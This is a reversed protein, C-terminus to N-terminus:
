VDEFRSITKSEGISIATSTTPRRRRTPPRSHSRTRGTARQRLRGPREVAPSPTSGSNSARGCGNSARTGCAGARCSARARRNPSNSKRSRRDARRALSASCSPDPIWWRYSGEKRELATMRWKSIVPGSLRVTKVAGDTEFDFKVSLRACQDLMNVISKIGSSHAAFAIMRRGVLMYVIRTEKIENGNPLFCRRKGNADAQWQAETPKQSFVNVCDALESGKPPEYERFSSEAAVPMFDFTRVAEADAVGYRLAILGAQAGAIFRESAPDCEKSALQIVSSRPPGRTPFDVFDDSNSLAALEEPSLRYPSTSPLSSTYSM